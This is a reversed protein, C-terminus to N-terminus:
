PPAPRPHRGARGTQDAVVVDLGSIQVFRAQGFQGIDAGGDGGFKFVHGGASQLRKAKCRGTDGLASETAM